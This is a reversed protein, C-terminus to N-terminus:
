SFLIKRSIITVFKRCDKFANTLLKKLVRKQNKKPVPIGATMGKPIRETVYFKGYVIIM